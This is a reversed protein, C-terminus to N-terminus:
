CRQGNRRAPRELEAVTAPPLGLAVIVRHPDIGAREARHLIGSLAELEACETGAATHRDLGAAARNGAPGHAGRQM